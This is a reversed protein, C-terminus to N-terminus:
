HANSLIEMDYHWGYTDFFCDMLIDQGGFYPEMLRVLMKIYDTSEGAEHNVIGLISYVQVFGYRDMYIFRSEGVSSMMNKFPVSAIRDTAPTQQSVSTM